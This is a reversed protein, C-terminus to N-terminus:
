AKLPLTFKVTSGKGTGESEIWIKGGHLGVIQRCITLGLGAGETEQTYASELRSFPEFVKEIAEAPIGIGTDWVSVEVESGTNRARLGIAGWAPTFKVANALLNFIVQRIKRRDAVVKGVSEPVDLSPKIKKPLFLGVALSLAEELCNKLSFTGAELVMKGSEVKSLDLVENILALLHVGSSLVNEAYKKQRENLPGFTGECLAESFGIISNLPSRLEHSMNALFETKAKSLRRLDNATMELRQNSLELELTRDHVTEELDGQQKRLEQEIMKLATVDRIIGVLMKRGEMDTYLTKKTVIVHSVGQADTFMEENTSEAGSEFVSKDKERFIDAESKRFFDYDTKGLIEDSPRGMFEYFAKNFLIWQYDRDKVFIPDAVSDIISRLYDRSEKIEREIKKRETIDTAIHVVGQLEGQSDFIPSVTVWLMEGHPGRAEGSHGKRDKYLVELPCGPWVDESQHMWQHCKKGIIAEPKVDFTDFVAKNARMLTHDKDLLVILDSISDFTRQWEEAAKLIKAEAEKRGTIDNFVTAFRGKDIQYVNIFFHRKLPEAYQEFSVAEGGLAVKGYIEIFPVKELGPFVETIRRGLVDEVKLGTHVEFAPNVKLFMYDAPRGEADLLIKHVAIGSIAEEFLLRNERESEKLSEEAQRQVTIDWAIGNITQPNGKDDRLLEGRIKLYHVSGDSWIVRYEPEYPIGTKITRNLAEKIKEQDEPHVAAFFEKATGGFTAPDLGLLACTQDDFFRRDEVLDFYWVGMRAAKRAVDLKTLSADLAERTKKRDTIDIGIGILVPNGQIIMRRGTMLMWRFAPGGRLLVRGEVVEEVGHKLVNEIKEGVLRRDEPHITDVAYIAPMDTDPKGVIEDRQYASWRVYRGKADIVYFTGPISDIITQNLLEEQKALSEARDRGAIERHLPLYVLAGFVFGVLIIAVFVYRMTKVGFQTIERPVTVKLIVVAKGSVDKLISYGAIVEPGFTKIFTDKGGLFAQLADSFDPPLVPANLSEEGMGVKVIGSLYKLEDADLYKAFILSGRAPGTGDSKLVARSAVMLTKTPLEIIGSVFSKEAPHTILISGKQLHDKFGEPLDPTLGKVPDKNMVSICEGRSNLFIQLDLKLNEFTTPTLNTKVFTENGDKVFSYADDWSAWDALKSALGKIRDAIVEQARSINKGLFKEELLEFAKMVTFQSIFYIAGILLAGSVVISWITRKHIFKKIDAM